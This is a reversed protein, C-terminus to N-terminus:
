RGFLASLSALGQTQIQQKIAESVVLDFSQQLIAQTQSPNAKIQDVMQQFQPGQFFNNVNSWLIESIQLNSGTWWAMGTWVLAQTELTGTFKFPLAQFITSFVPISNTLDSIQLRLGCYTGILLGIIIGILLRIMVVDLSFYFAGWINNNKQFCLAIM